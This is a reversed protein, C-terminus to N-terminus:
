LLGMFCINDDENQLHLFQSKSFKFLKDKSLLPDLIQVLADSVLIM